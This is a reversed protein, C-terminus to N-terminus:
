AAEARIMANILACDFTTDVQLLLRTSGLNLGKSPSTEVLGYGFSPGDGSGNGIGDGYGDGSKDIGYRCLNGCGTGNGNGNGTGNGTGTGYGSGNSLTKIM